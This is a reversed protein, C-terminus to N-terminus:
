RPKMAVNAVPNLAVAEELHDPAMHAYRMTTKLDSHGLIKQLTLINGGTDADANCFRKYFLRKSRFIGSRCGAPARAHDFWRGNNPAGSLRWFGMM